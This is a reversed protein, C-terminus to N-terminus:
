FGEEFSVEGGEVTGGEEGAGGDASVEEGSLGDLVTGRSLVFVARILGASADPPPNSLDPSAPNPPGEYRSVLSKVKPRPDLKAM